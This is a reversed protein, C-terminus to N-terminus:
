NNLLRKAQSLCDFALVKSLAAVKLLRPMECSLTAYFRHDLFDGYSKEEFLAIIKNLWKFSKAAESLCNLYLTISEVGTDYSLFKKTPSFLSYLFKALTVIELHDEM